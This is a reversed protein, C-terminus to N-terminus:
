VRKIEKLAKQKDPIEPLVTVMFVLDFFNNKYPLKYASAVTSKVNKIDRNEPRSLKKKLKNIMEKQIDLAYVKGRKGVKRAADTTFTGPGCGLEMICMGNKIGSREILKKSPQVLRRRYRSDLFIGIFAPAPFKCFRRIIKSILLYAIIGLLIYLLIQMVTM